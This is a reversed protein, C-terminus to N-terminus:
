EYNFFVIKLDVNLTDWYEFKSSHWEYGGPGPGTKISYGTKYYCYVPVDIIRVFTAENESFVINDLKFTLDNFKMTTFQWISYGNHSGTNRSIKIDNILINVNFYNSDIKIFKFILEDTVISDAFINVNELLYEQSKNYYYNEITLSINDYDFKLKNSFVSDDESENTSVNEDCSSFFAFSVILILLSIASFNLKIFM